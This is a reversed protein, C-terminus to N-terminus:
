GVYKSFSVIALFGTLTFPLFVLRFLLCLHGDDLCIMGKMSLNSLHKRYFMYRSQPIKSPENGTDIATPRHMQTVDSALHESLRLAPTAGAADGAKQVVTVDPYPLPILWNSHAQQCLGRSLPSCNLQYDVRALHGIAMLQQYHSDGIAPPGQRQSPGPNSALFPVTGTALLSGKQTVDVLQHGLCRLNHNCAVALKSRKMFKQVEPSPAIYQALFTAVVYSAVFMIGPPANILQDSARSLVNPKLAYLQGLLIAMVSVEQGDPSWTVGGRPEQRRVQGRFTSRKVNVFSAHPDFLHETIELAMAEIQLFATQAVEQAQRAECQGHSKEIEPKDSQADVADLTTLSMEDISIVATVETDESNTMIHELM